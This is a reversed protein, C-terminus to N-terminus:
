SFNGKFSFIIVVIIELITVLQCDEKGNQAARQISFRAFAKADEDEEGVKSAIANRCWKFISVKM